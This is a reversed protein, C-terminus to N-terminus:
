DVSKLAEIMPINKIKRHMIVMILLTVSMVILSALAINVLELKPDFMSDDNPLVKLIFRHLLIGLECGFLIGIITLVITERYIYLTSEMDYYGLVKVTALEKIRESVNINTLNYIVVISLIVAMVSLIFIISNLSTLLSNILDKRYNNRIMSKVAPSEMFHTAVKEENQRDNNKLQVLESNVLLDKEFMKEYTAQSMFLYHGLYMETIESVPMAIYKGSAVKVKFKDGVAVHFYNALKESIVVGDSPMNLDIGSKRDKFHIYDSINTESAAPVIMNIAQDFGKSDLKTIPELYVSSFSKVEEGTLLKDLENEDNESLKKQNTVIFDFKIIEQYQRDVIGSLSGKIGLCVILLCICGSVGCITMFARQKYRFLNRMMIKYKFSLRKWIFPLKELFLKQGARPPKARLLESVKAKVDNTVSLYSTLVTCSLTIAVVLLTYNWYFQLQLVDFTAIPRYAEFVAKSFQIHGLVIGLGAGLLGSVSGYVVFKAKVDFDSYGLAKLTGINIREEDSFRVMTTLSLLVAVVYTIIPFVNGLVDIRTSNEIYGSYGPNTKRSGLTYVPKELDALEVESDRLKKESKSIDAEIKGKESEYESFKVAYEAEAESLQLQAEDIKKRGDITQTDLETQAAELKAHAESVEVKSTEVKKSVEAVEDIMQNLQLQSTNIDNVIAQAQQWPMIDQNAQYEAKKEELKAQNLNIESINKNTEAVYDSLTAQKSDLEKRGDNIEAQKSSVTENYAEQNSAIQRKLDDIQEKAEKLKNQAEVFESKATKLESKGTNLEEQATTIIDSYRAKARKTLAKEIRTQQKMIEATYARKYPDMDKTTSLNLRAIIYSSADFTEPIVVAYGALEGTGIDTQGMNKRGVIESSKVFGTVKYTHNVLINNELVEFTITSGLKYREELSFNLAIEHDNKPFRGSELSYKSLEKPMSFIRIADKTGKILSDQLYGFEVKDIGSMEDLFAMDSEDLGYTSILTFDALNNKQYFDNATKRMNPGTVKLGTFMLAGLFM